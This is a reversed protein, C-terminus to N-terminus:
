IILEQPKQSWKPIYLKSPHVHHPNNIRAESNFKHCKWINTCPNIINQAWM